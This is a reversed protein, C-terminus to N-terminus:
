AQGNKLRLPEDGAAGAARNQRRREGLQQIAQGATRWVLYLCVASFILNVLHFSLLAQGAFAITVIWRALDVSLETRILLVYLGTLVFVLSPALVVAFRSPSIQGSPSPLVFAAFTFLAAVIIGLGITFVGLEKTKDRLADKAAKEADRAARKESGETRMWVDGDFEDNSM